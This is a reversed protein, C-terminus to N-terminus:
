IRLLTPSYMSLLCNEIGEQEVQSRKPTKLPSKFELSGASSSVYNHPMAVNELKSYKIHFWDDTYEKEGILGCAQLKKEELLYSLSMMGYRMGQIQNRREM